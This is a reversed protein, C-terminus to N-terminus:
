TWEKESLKQAVDTVGDFEGLVERLNVFRAGQIGGPSIKRYNTTVPRGCFFRHGSAIEYGCQERADAIIGRLADDYESTDRGQIPKKKLRLGDFQVDFVSDIEWIVQVAKDKYIGVYQHSTYGRDSPHFYIGYQRNLALSQGCPVVRMLYSSQDFLGIDNCYEEYDDTLERIEYEYEQFLAVSAKCIEEYTINKFIIDPKTKGIEERIKQEANGIHRKTLLLLIKQHEGSFGDAHRLLQDVDHHSDVKSELLVKFSRQIVSGDPVSEGGREQQNIEIGIEISEGTLETLLVSAKTPSYAYIRALLQLTNNTVTNEVSSYRQFYHIRSM